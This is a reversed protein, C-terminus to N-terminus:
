QSWVASSSYATIQLIILTLKWTKKIIGVVQLNTESWKLETNSPVWTGPETVSFMSIINGPETNLSSHNMLTLLGMSVVSGWNSNLWHSCTIKHTITQCRQALNNPSAGAMNTSWNLWGVGASVHWHWQEAFRIVTDTWSYFRLRSIEVKRTSNPHKCNYQVGCLVVTKWRNTTAVFRLAHCHM